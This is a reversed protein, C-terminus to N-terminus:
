PQFLDGLGVVMNAVVTDELAVDVGQKFVWLSESGVEERHLRNSHKVVRETFFNKWIFLRFSERPVDQPQKMRDSTVQSVGVESCAGTLSDYPSILDGKLRKRWASGQRGWSGWGSRELLWICCHACSGQTKRMACCKGGKFHPISIVEYLLGKVM